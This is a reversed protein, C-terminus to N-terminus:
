ARVAARAIVCAGQGVRGSQLRAQARCRPRVGHEVRACCRDGVDDAGPADGAGHRAAGLYVGAFVAVGLVQGVLSATMILGSLDAAQAPRGLTSLRSALPSFACAHGVGAAFLLPAAQWETWHAAAILGVGIVAAAMAPPGLLPLRESMALSGDMVAMAQGALLIVLTSM